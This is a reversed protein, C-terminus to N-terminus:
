ANTMNCGKGPLLVGHHFNTVSFDCDQSQQFRYRLYTVIDPMSEISREKESDPLASIHSKWLRKEM